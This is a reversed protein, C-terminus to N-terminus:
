KSKCSVKGEVSQISIPYTTKNNSLFAKIIMTYATHGQREIELDRFEIKLTMKKNPVVM